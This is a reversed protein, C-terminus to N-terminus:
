GRLHGALAESVNVQLSRFVHGFFGNQHNVVFFINQFQHPVM